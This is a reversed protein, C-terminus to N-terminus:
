LGLEPFVKKLTDHYEKWSMKKNKISLVLKVDDPDLSEIFEIM